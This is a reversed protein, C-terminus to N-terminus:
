LYFSGLVMYIAKGLFIRTSLVFWFFKAVPRETALWSSSDVECAHRSYRSPHTINSAVETRMDSCDGRSRLFSMKYADLQGFFFVILIYRAFYGNHPWQIYRTEKTLTIKDWAQTHARGLRLPYPFPLKLTEKREKEGGGGGWGRM